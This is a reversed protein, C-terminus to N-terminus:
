KAQQLYDNKENSAQKVQQLLNNEEEFAQNVQKVQQLHNDEEEFAQEM